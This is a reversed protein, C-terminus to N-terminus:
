QNGAQVKRSDNGPTASLALVRFVCQAREMEKIIDCYAYNGSARHAEDFIVLVVKDVDCNSAQIDNRFTEPTMFLLRKKKWAIRRTEAQISGTLEATIEKKIGTIKFCADIQQNVLPKTPAM